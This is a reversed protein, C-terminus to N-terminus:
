RHVQKCVIEWIRNKKRLEKSSFRHQYLNMIEKEKMM